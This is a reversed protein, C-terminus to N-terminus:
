SKVKIGASEIAERCEQLTSLRNCKEAKSAMRDEGYPDPLEVTMAKRSAQWAWWAGSNIHSKYLDGDRDAIMEEITCPREPNDSNLEAVMAVEFEERMRDSM